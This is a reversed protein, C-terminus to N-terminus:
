CARRRSTPPSCRMSSRRSARARDARLRRRHPVARLAVGAADCGRPRRRDAARADRPDGAPPERAAHRPHRRAALRRDHADRLRARHEAAHVRGRRLAQLARERPRPRPLARCRRSSRRRRAVRARDLRAGAEAVRRDDQDDRVRADAARDHDRALERDRLQRRLARDGRVRAPLGPPVHHVREDRGGGRTAQAQGTRVQATPPLVRSSRAALLEPRLRQAQVRGRDRRTAWRATSGSHRRFTSGPSRRTASRRCRTASASSGRSAHVAAGPGRGPRRDHRRGRLGEEEGDGRRDRDRETRALRRGVLRLPNFPSDGNAISFGISPANGVIAKGEKDILVTSESNVSGEAQQVEPVRASRRSCAVRRAHAGRQWRGDTLDFASRGSIVADSGQRVDNFIADFAQDISDTLVYTGSVM